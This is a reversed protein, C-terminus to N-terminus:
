LLALNIEYKAEVEVGRHKLFIAALKPRLTKIDCTKAKFWIDESDVAHCYAWMCVFLGCDLNGDQQRCGHVWKAESQIELGSRREIVKSYFSAVYNAIGPFNPSYDISNWHYICKDIPNLVLLFWHESSNLPIMVFTKSFINATNLKDFAMTGFITFDNLLSDFKADSMREVDVRPRSLLEQQAPSDLYDIEHGHQNMISESCLLNLYLDIHEASLMEDFLLECMHRGTLQHPGREM